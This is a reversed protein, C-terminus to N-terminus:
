LSLTEMIGFPTNQVSIQLKLKKGLAVHRSRCAHMLTGRSCAPLETGVLCVWEVGAFFSPTTIGQLRSSPAILSLSPSGHRDILGRDNQGRVTQPLLTSPSLIALTVPTRGM